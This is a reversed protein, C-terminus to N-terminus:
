GQCSNYIAILQKGTRSWHRSRAFETLGGDMRTNGISFSSLIEALADQSDFMLGLDHSRIIDGVDSQRNGVVATSAFAARRLPGSIGRERRYPLVLADAALFYYDVDEEPIYELRDIIEVLDAVKRKWENMDSQTFDDESGAFVVTIERDVDRLAQALIDPGKEYRLGGFFLFLPRDQPLDLYERAESQSVDVSLEPTPAPITRTNSRTAAPVAGIIRDRISDAHVTLCNLSGDRLVANLAQKTVTQTAIKGLSRRSNDLFADRHLTAVTPPYGDSSIRTAAWFPVQTRDFYLLHVVDVGIDQVTRYIQRLQEVRVRQEHISSLLGQPSDEPYVPFDITRVSLSGSDPLGDLCPNESRTIFSVRHGQEVFYRSLYVVYPTHHGEWKLDVLGIHM